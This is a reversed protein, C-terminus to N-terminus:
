QPCRTSRGPAPRTQTEAVRFDAAQALRATFLPSSGSVLKAIQATASLEFPKVLKPLV